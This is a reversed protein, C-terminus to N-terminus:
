PLIYEVTLTGTGSTFDGTGVDFYIYATDEGVTATGGVLDGDCQVVDGETLATAAIAADIGDADIVTGDAEQVGITLDASDATDWDTEAVLVASIIVSGAPIGAVDNRVTGNEPLNDYDLDLEIQNIKGVTRVTGAEYNNTDRWGFGVELGDDNVWVNDRAM